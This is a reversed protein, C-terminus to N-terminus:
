KRARKRSKRSAPGPNRAGLRRSVLAELERWAADARRFMSKSSRHIRPGPHVWLVTGKADVLLSVSTARHLGGRKMLTALETVDPDIGISGGYGIRRARASVEEDSLKKGSKEHFVAVMGLGKHSRTLKWLDPLSAKCHPCPSTWWRFLTLEHRALEPMRKNPTLWRLGALSGLRKGILPNRDDRKAAALGDLLKEAKQVEITFDSYRVVGDKDIVITWPTGGTRYARMIRSGKGQGDDHGFPIGLRYRRAV